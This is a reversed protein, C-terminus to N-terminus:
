PTERFPQNAEYLKLRQEIQAALAPQGLQRALSLARQAAATAEAFSGNEAHAVALTDLSMVNAGGTLQVAQQAFALADRGHRVAADPHTALLRALLTLPEPWDAKLRVADRLRAVAPAAQNLGLLALALRYHAVASDPRARVANELLPAAEAHRGQRILLLGLNLDAEVLGPSRRLAERYHREAEAPRAGLLNAAQLHAQPTPHLRLTEFLHQLAAERDGKEILALALNFHAHSFQPQHQLALEYHRIAEVLRGENALLNALNNHALAHTPRLRVAAEYHSRAEAAKGQAALALALNNHAMADHPSIQIAHTFLTVSDRWTQVQRATLWLCATLALGTAAIAGARLQPKLAVADALAWAVMVFVGLLPVYTYRDALAQDGVQVIGIVPVLTGLYWLWGILLYPRAKVQRIAVASMGALILLAGGVQWWPWSEPHPYHAALQFPWITRGLYAAYSGVANSLRLGLPLQDVSVVAEGSQAAVTILSAVAALGFFPWKEKAHWEIAVRWSETRWEPLPRRHLPWHDLLIFTCPLTVLMPKAMLGLAFAGLGAAYWRPSNTQAYRAYAWTALLWFLTSLVDKRESVWAVSEVHLPHWAFLAAVLASRWFAGTLRQLLGLLLLANVTHLLVNELHFWRPNLGFLEVDLLYSLWTVPHWNSVSTTTFAWRITDATLGERVVPNESIYLNDDYNVFDFNRVPAFVALTLLALAAFTWLRAPVAAANGHNIM